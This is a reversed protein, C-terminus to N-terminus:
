WRGEAWKSGPYALTWSFSPKREVPNKRLQYPESPRSSYDGSERYYLWLWWCRVLTLGQITKIAWAYINTTTWHLILTPTSWLNILYYNRLLELSKQQQRSVTPMMLCRIGESYSLSSSSNLSLQISVHVSVSVSSSSLKLKLQAHTETQTSTQTSNWYNSNLELLFTSM